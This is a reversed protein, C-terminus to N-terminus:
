REGLVDLDFDIGSMNVYKNDEQRIRMALYRGAMNYDLKYLESGDYTQYDSWEVPINAYDSGGFSFEIPESGSELRAQPYVSNVVKYDTLAIGLDDLDVGDRELRWGLTATEDVALPVLSGPGVPDFAYISRTLGYTSNSTGLFVPVRRLNSSFDAWSGGINEWTASEPITEWTLENDVSTMAASVASPLDYFSWTGTQTQSYNWVAARNCGTAGIFSAFRDGSIYCFYIEKLPKNHFVFCREKQSYDLSNFIFNRVRNTCLSVKQVGDHMWIDNPGFVFHKNEHEVICNTNIVGADRFRRTYRFVDNSPVPQMQWVENEGYIYLSTHLTSGDVISGEMENIVNETANNSPDTEDWTSPVAGFTAFESTKVMTPYSVGTKTVGLAVLAGGCTRMVRARWNSNWNTLAAFQSAALTKFWPVRDERNMYVVDGLVVGTFPAESDSGVYGSISVDTQTGNAFSAIRGNLSGIYLTDFDDTTLHSFLFRTNSEDVNAVNRFVPSRQVGGDAFRVNVGGSFANPPLNYPDVDTIIGHESLNRLPAIPM